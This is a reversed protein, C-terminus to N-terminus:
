KDKNISGYRYVLVGWQARVSGHLKGFQPLPQGPGITTDGVSFDLQFYSLLLSVLFPKDEVLARVCFCERWVIQIAIEIEEEFDWRFLSVFVM